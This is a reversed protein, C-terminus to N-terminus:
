EAFNRLAPWASAHLRASKSAHPSAAHPPPEPVELPVPVSGEPFAVGPGPPESVDVPSTSPVALTVSIM